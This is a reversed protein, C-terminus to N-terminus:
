RNSDNHPDLAALLVSGIMISVRALSRVLAVLGVIFM